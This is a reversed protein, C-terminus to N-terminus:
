LATPHSIIANAGSRGRTWRRIWVEVGLFDFLATPASVIREHRGSLAVELPKRDLLRQRVLVGDLLTERVFQINNLLSRRIFSEISSKHRRELIGAPVDRAFAQRALARDKGGATLVFTPIQLCLETLPQSTLPEVREPDGERALATYFHPATSLWLIHWLKGHPLSSATSFWPHMFRTRLSDAQRIKVLVEPSVFEAAQIVEGYADWPSGLLGESIGQHLVRWVSLQEARAVDRVRRFLSRSMGRYWLSDGVSAVMPSQFFLQDGGEGGFRAGAGHDQALQRELANEEVNRSNFIMPVPFEGMDSMLSLRSTPTRPVEILNCEAQRAAARAYEREDGDEGADEEEPFYTVCTIQPRSRADRLCGLVVASDLGGSLRHLVSPYCSAWSHICAKATARLRSAAQAPDELPPLRALRVPHWYFESRTAENGVADCEGAHLEEIENLGTERGQLSSLVMRAAMYDWNVSLPGVDLQSYDSLRSFYIRIGSARARYCPLHGSPDRIIRTVPATADSLIAVYRGWYGSILDRGQSQIIGASEQEALSVPKSVASDDSPPQRRFLTGLVVGRGNHLLHARSAGPSVARHFVKARPQDVDCTWGTEPRMEESLRRLASLHASSASESILAIFSFLNSIWSSCLWYRLTPACTSLM